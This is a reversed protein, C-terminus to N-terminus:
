RPTTTKTPILLLELHKRKQAMAILTEDNEPKETELALISYGFSRIKNLFHTDSIGIAELYTPAFEIIAPGRYKMGELIGLESGESDIKCLDYHDECRVTKVKVACAKQSPISVLSNNVAGPTKVYFVSEGNKDSVAAKHVTINKFGHLRINKQLMSFAYEDPEYAIVSAGQQAALITFYGINTGIDLFTMGPRLNKKIYNTVAPEYPRICRKLNTGYM